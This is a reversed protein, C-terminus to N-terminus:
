VKELTIKIKDGVNLDPKETGLSLSERSGDLHVFWRNGDEFLKTLSTTIVYLTRVKTEVSEM